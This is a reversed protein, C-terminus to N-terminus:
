CTTRQKYIRELALAPNHIVGATTRPNIKFNADIFGPGVSSEPLYKNEIYLFEWDGVAAFCCVALIDFTGKQILSTRMQCGEVDLEVSDSNRVGVNGEWSDHLGDQKVSATKVSKCEITIPLHKYIVEFDGKRSHQDPIKTVETVGEISALIISLKLEALYGQLYGRLSSNTSVLYELDDMSFGSLISPVKLDCRILSLPIRPNDLCNTLM